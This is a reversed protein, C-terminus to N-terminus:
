ERVYAEQLIKQLVEKPAFPLHDLIENNMIKEYESERVNYDKLSNWLNIDKIFQLVKEVFASANSEASGSQEGTVYKYLKDFKDAGSNTAAYRLFGPYVLVLCEGHSIRPCIGGIIESLPHPITAGGNALCIGALTDASAMRERFEINNLDDLVKPLYEFVTKIAIKSLLSTIRNTRNGLYSELAHAFVDFGTAATGRKPMTVILEPDVISELPYNSPHFVTLKEDTSSNTVVAAQTVHSGTGSTTTLSILPLSEKPSPYYLFPNTYTTFIHKWDIEKKRSYTLAILKASDIASGGGVGLVCDVRKQKALEIAENISEITPNPVVGDFHVIDVGKKSLISKVRDYTEKIPEVCPGTVLLCRTGYTAVVDGIENVRGVGFRIRTPLFFDFKNTMKM